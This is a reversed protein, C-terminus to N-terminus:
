SPWVESGRGHPLPIPYSNANAFVAEKRDRRPDPLRMRLMSDATRVM